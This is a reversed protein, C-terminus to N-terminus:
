LELSDAMSIKGLVAASVSQWNFGKHYQYHACFAAFSTSAARRQTKLNEGLKFVNLTASDSFVNSLEYANRFTGGLGATHYLWFDLLDRCYVGQQLFYVVTLDMSISSSGVLCVFIDTAFIQLSGHGLTHM